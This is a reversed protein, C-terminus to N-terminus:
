SSIVLDRPLVWIDSLHTHKLLGVAVVCFCYGGVPSLSGKCRSEVARRETPECDRAM